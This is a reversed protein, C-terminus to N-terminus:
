KIPSRPEKEAGSQEGSFISCLSVSLILKWQLQLECSMERSSWVKGRAVLVISKWFTLKLIMSVNLHIKLIRDNIMLVQTLIFVSTQSTKDKWWLSCLGVSILSSSFFPPTTIKRVSWAVGTAAFMQHTNSVIWLCRFLFSSNIEQRPLSNAHKARYCSENNLNLIPSWPGEM